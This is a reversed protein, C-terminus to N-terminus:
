ARVKKPVIEDLIVDQLAFMEKEEDEEMHDYGLLHLLGHTFLFCVERRLSHGYEKAQNRIAEVNIFIDGLENDDEMMEYDDESDMLAFSIVDTPRDIGRYTKNIEHIEEPNVFIVSASYEKELKLIEETRKAIISFDKRFRSWQKEESQNIVSIEM